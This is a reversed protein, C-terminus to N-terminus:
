KLAGAGKTGCLSDLLRETISEPTPPDIRTTFLTAEPFFIKKWNGQTYLSYLDATAFTQVLWGEDNFAILEDATGSVQRYNRKDVKSALTPATDFSKSIVEKECLAELLPNM